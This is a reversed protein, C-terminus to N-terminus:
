QVASRCLAAIRDRIGSLNTTGHIDAFLCQGGSGSTTGLKGITRVCASTRQNIYLQILPLENVGWVNRRVNVSSFADDTCVSLACLALAFGLADHLIHHLGVEDRLLNGLGAIRHAGGRGKRSGTAQRAWGPHAVM